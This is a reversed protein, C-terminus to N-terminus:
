LDIMFKTLRSCKLKVKTKRHSIILLTDDLHVFPRVRMGQIQYQKFM